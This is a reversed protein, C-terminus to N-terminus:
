LDSAAALHELEIWDCFAKEKKIKGTRRAWPPYAHFEPISDSLTTGIDDAMLSDFVAAVRSRHAELGEEVSTNVSVRATVLFNGSNLPVEDGTIDVGCIANPLALTDDDQGTDVTLGDLQLGLVVQQLAAEAKSTIDSDAM